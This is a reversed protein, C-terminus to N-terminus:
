EQETFTFLIDEVLVLCKGWKNHQPTLFAWILGFAWSCYTILQCSRYPKGDDIASM